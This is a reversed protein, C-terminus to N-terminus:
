HLDKTHLSMLGRCFSVPDQKPAEPSIKEPIVVEPKVTKNQTLDIITYAGTGFFLIWVAIIAKSSKLYELLLKLWDHLDHSVKAEM